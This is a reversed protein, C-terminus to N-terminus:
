SLQGEINEALFLKLPPEILSWMEDDPLTDKLKEELAQKLNCLSVKEEELKEQLVNETFQIFNNILM